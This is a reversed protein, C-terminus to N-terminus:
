RAVTWLLALLHLSVGYLDKWWTKRVYSATSMYSKKSNDRFIIYQGQSLPVLTNSVYMNSDNLALLIGEKLNSVTYGFHRAMADIWAAPTWINDEMTM